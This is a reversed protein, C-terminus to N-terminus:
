GPCLGRRRCVVKDYYMIARVMFGIFFPIRKKVEYGGGMGKLYYRKSM